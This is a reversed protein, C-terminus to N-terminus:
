RVLYFYTNGDILVPDDFSGIDQEDALDAPNLNFPADEARQVTFPTVGGSWSLLVRGGALDKDVRLDIPAWGAAVQVRVTRTEYPGLPVRFGDGDMLLPTGGEEDAEIEEPQSLALLDSAVRADTANGTLETLRLVLGDGIDAQKMTYPLVTADEVTVFSAADSNLNGPRKSLTRAAVPTLAEFGFRSAAVPDFTAPAGQLHHTYTLRSPTGPEVTFAGVTGGDFEYEDAKDYLRSLLLADGNSFATSTLSSLNEFHHVLVSDLAYHIGGQGDFFALTHEVNHWDFLNPRPFGDNLPDLFRTTSESRIEFDHVDFPMTVMYSRVATAQPVYPMLDRELVNEIEVRDEGNRLRYITETHPTGTRTVRLSALLPGNLEIGVTATAPPQAVPLAQFDYEQKVNAALENFDYASGTDILERGTAKEILSQVSGDTADLTLLYFDNELTTATATLLGAPTATPAGPEIRYARYGFAPVGTAHFLLDSGGNLTQYPVESGSEVEILRFSGPTQGAPVPSEVYGDRARGLTNIAAIGDGAAPILAGIRDLGQTKLAVANDRADTAYGLHITNNREMEEPTFYGPWGGAGTHEDSELMKRYMLDIQDRPYPQGDLSAAAALTAEAARGDRHSQRIRAQTHAANSRSNCWAAGYDGSYEPFAAAGYKSLMMDFFEEPTVLHFVPTDYTANWQNILNRAHFGQYHNDFGRLLMLEPYPYGAEEQEPLKQALKDYMAALNDFFSFGYQFGEAYSDFTHWALVRSGDPGVWWFPRDGHGPEDVRGGFGTNMGGIFYEIGARALVEPVAQTTGPVDDTIWTRVPFGHERALRTGYYVNRILQEHGLATSTQMAYSASLSLRGSQLWSIMNQHEAPTSREWWKELFWGSEIFWRYDPDAALNNLVNDLHTKSFAEIDDPPETFGIDLHSLEVLYIHEVSSVVGRGADGWVDLDDVWTRKGREGDARLEIEHFRDVTDLTDLFDLNWSAPEAGAGGTWHRFRLRPHGGADEEVALKLWRTVGAPIENPGGALVLQMVGSESRWLSPTGNEDIQLRYQRLEPARQLLDIQFLYGSGLESRYEMAVAFTTATTPRVFHRAEHLSPSSVFPGQGDAQFSSDGGDPVILWPSPQGFGNGQEWGADLGADFDDSYVTGSGPTYAAAPLGALLLLALWLVPLSTRSPVVPVSGRTRQM